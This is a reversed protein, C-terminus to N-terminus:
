SSTAFLVARFRTFRVDMFIQLLDTYYNGFFFHTLCRVSKEEIQNFSAGQYNMFNHPKLNRKQPGCM